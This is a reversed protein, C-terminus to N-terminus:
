SGAMACPDSSGPRRRPRRPDAASPCSARAGTAPPSAGAPVGDIGRDIARRRNRADCRPQRAGPRHSRDTGHVLLRGEVPAVLLRLWATGGRYLPFGHGRDARDPAPLRLCRRLHRRHLRRIRTGQGISTTRITEGPAVTVDRITATTDATALQFLALLIMPSDVGIDPGLGLGFVLRNRLGAGSLDRLGEGEGSRRLVPCRAGAAAGTGRMHEVIPIDHGLLISHVPREGTDISDINFSDIGVM